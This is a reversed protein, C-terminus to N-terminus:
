GSKGLAIEVWKNELDNYVRLSSRLLVPLIHHARPRQQLAVGVMSGAFM